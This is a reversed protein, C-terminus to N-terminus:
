QPQTLPAGGAAFRLRRRLLQRVNEPLAVTTPFRRPTTKQPDQAALRLPIALAALAAVAIIYTLTRSKM